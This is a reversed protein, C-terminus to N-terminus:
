TEEQFAKPFPNIAIVASNRGGVGEYCWASCFFFFVFGVSSQEM